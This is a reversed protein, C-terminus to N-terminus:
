RGLRKIRSKSGTQYDKDILAGTKRMGMILKNVYQRSLGTSKSIELQKKGALYGNLVTLYKPSLKSKLSEIKERMEMEGIINIEADEDSALTDHLTLTGGKDDEGIPEDLSITAVRKKRLSM